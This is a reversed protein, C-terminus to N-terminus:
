LGIERPPPNIPIEMRKRILCENKLMNMKSILTLMIM